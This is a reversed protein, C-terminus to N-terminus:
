YYSELDVHKRVDKKPLSNIIHQQVSTGHFPSDTTNVIYNIEKSLEILENLKELFIPEKESLAKLAAAINAALTLYSFNYFEEDETAALRSSVIEQQARLELLRKAALAYDGILLAKGIEADLNDKILSLEKNQKERESKEHELQIQLEEIEAKKPMLSLAKLKMDIYSNQPNAAEFAFSKLQNIRDQNYKM